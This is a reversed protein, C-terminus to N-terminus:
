TQPVSGTQISPTWSSQECVPLKTMYLLSEVYSIFRIIGLSNRAHIDFDKGLGNGQLSNNLGTRKQKMRSYNNLNFQLASSPNNYSIRISINSVFFVNAMCFDRLRVVGVFSWSLQAMLELFIEHWNNEKSTGLYNDYDHCCYVHAKGQAGSHQIYTPM